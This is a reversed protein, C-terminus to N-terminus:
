IGRLAANWKNVLIRAMGSPAQQSHGYELAMIYPLNNTIYFLGGNVLSSTFASARALSPGGRKDKITDTGTPRDFGFFWNSRSLGTDVPNAMVLEGTFDLVIKRVVKNLSIGTERSWAALGGAFAGM